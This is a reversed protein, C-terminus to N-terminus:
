IHTISVLLNSEVFITMSFANNTTKTVRLIHIYFFNRHLLTKAVQHMIMSLPTMSFAVSNIKTNM